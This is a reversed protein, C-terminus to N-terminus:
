AFGEVVLVFVLNLDERPGPSHRLATGSGTRSLRSEVIEAKCVVEILRRRNQYLGARGTLVYLFGRDRHSLGAFPLLLEEDDLHTVDDDGADARATRLIGGLHRLM